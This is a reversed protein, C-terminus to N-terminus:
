KGVEKLRVIIFYLVYICDNDGIEWGYKVRWGVGILNEDDEGM